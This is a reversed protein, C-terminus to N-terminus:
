EFVQLVNLKYEAGPLHHSYEEIFWYFLYMIAQAKLYSTDVDLHIVVVNGASVKFTLAKDRPDEPKLSWCDTYGLCDEVLRAFNAGVSEEENYGWDLVSPFKSADFETM